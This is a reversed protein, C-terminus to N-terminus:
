ASNPAGIIPATIWGGDSARAAMAIDFGTIVRSLTTGGLADAYSVSQALPGSSSSILGIADLVASWPQVDLTGDNNADLDQGPTGTFGSVLLVTSSSNELGLPGNGFGSVTASSSLVVVRTSAWPGIVAPGPDCDIMGPGDRLLILGSDGITYAGLPIANDIRGKQTASTSTADCEIVVVSLGALSAGPPGSIEIFEQGIDAGLPNVMLENLRIAPQGQALAVQSVLALSVVATTWRLSVGGGSCTAPTTAVM